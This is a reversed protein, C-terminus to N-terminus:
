FVFLLGQLGLGEVEFGRLGTFGWLGRFGLGLARFGGFGGFREFGWVRLGGLGKFGLGLGGM